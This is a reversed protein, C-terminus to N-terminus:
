TQTFKGDDLVLTLRKRKRDLFDKSSNEGKYFFDYLLNAREKNLRTYFFHTQKTRKDKKVDSCSIGEMELRKKFFSLFGENGVISFELYSVKKHNRIRPTSIPFSGDGDFYGLMAAPIYKEPIKDFLHENIKLTKNIEMGHNILDDHIKKRAIVLRKGRGDNILVGNYGIRECFLHLHNEDKPALCIQLKKNYLNGDAAIFGFWYAKEPTNIEKFYDENCSYTKIGAEQANRGGGVEELLKGISCKGLNIKKHIESITLKEEFYLRLVEEKFVEKRKPKITVGLKCALNLINGVSKNYKEAFFRANNGNYNVKIDSRIDM